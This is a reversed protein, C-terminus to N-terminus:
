IKQYEGREARDYSYEPLTNQLMVNLQELSERSPQNGIHKLEEMISLAPMARTSQQGANDLLHKSTLDQTTKENMLSSIHQGHNDTKESDEYKYEPSMRQLVENQERESSPLFTNKMAKYRRRLFKSPLKKPHGALMQHHSAKGQM